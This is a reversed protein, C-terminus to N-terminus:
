GQHVRNGSLSDPRPQLLRLTRGEVEVEYKDKAVPEARGIIGTGTM